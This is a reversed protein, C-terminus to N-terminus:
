ALEQGLKNKKKKKKKVGHRDYHMGLHDLYLQSCCLFPTYFVVFDQSQRVGEVELEIASFNLQSGLLLGDRRGWPEINSAINVERSYGILM